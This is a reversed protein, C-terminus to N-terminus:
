RRSTKNLHFTIGTSANAMLNVRWVPDNNVGEFAENRIWLAGGRLHVSLKPTFRYRLGLDGGVAYSWGRETIGYDDLKRNDSVAHLVPSFKQVHIAPSVEIDFPTYGRGRILSLVGMQLRLGVQMYETKSYIDGLKMDSPDGQLYRIIGTKNMYDDLQHAKAGLQGIGWDLSLEPSFWRGITYGAFLGGGYGLRTEKGLSFLDGWMLPSSAQIGLYFGKPNNRSETQRVSNTQAQVGICLITCLLAPIFITLRRKMLKVKFKFIELIAM